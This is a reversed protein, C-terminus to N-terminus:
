AKFRPVGLIHCGSHSPSKMSAPKLWNEGPGESNLSEEEWDDSRLLAWKRGRGHASGKRESSDLDVEGKRFSVETPLRARVTSLDWLDKRGGARSAQTAAGTWSRRSRGVGM